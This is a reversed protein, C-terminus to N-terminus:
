IPGQIGSNLRLPSESGLCERSGTTTSMRQFRHHKRIPSTAYFTVKGQIGAASVEVTNTGLKPGAHAYKTGQRKYRDKHNHPQAYWRGRYCCLYGFGGVLASGNEDQAEVIFPQSLSTFSPGTQNDGSIKLLAPHARNDFSIEVGRSQLVPIYTHLSLYSLPNGRVDIKDGEGLGTNAVLPSLDTINNGLLALGKLNTLGALVSIDSVSNVWLDLSELHILGAIPSLDSVSNSNGWVGPRVEGGDLLLSKLNTAYELGTLDTINTNRATLGTLRAM